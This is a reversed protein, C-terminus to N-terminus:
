AVNGLIQLRQQEFSQSIGRSKGALARFVKTELVEGEKLATIMWLLGPPTAGAIDAFSPGSDGGPHSHYVGIIKLDKKRVQRQIKLHLAPDILFEDLGAALNPSRVADLIQRDKGILLGCAESPYASRAHAEIQSLLHRSIQM